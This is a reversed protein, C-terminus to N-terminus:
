RSPIRAMLLKLGDSVGFTSNREATTRDLFM